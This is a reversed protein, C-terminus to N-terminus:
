RDKNTSQNQNCVESPHGRAIPLKEGYKLILWPLEVACSLRPIFVRPQALLRRFWGLYFRDAWDPIATQDGTIFGLAAGTCHIAPRYSLNERLHYGLKEQAGSGIAIIVDAPRRREILAVLNQDAVEVGYRPAVYWNESMIPFAAGRSWDLFKQEARITPFVWLVARKGEGKLMQLLHKLYRLGSIRQVRERRFLRWLVVMLGSDAIALDAAIVARRYKEDHRLRAFCTGSPAVLLGGRQLMLAVAEEVDGNFFSIGLIQRSSVV